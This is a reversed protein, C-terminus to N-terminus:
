RGVSITPCQPTILCCKREIFYNWLETQYSPIDCLADKDANLMNIRDLKEDRWEMHVKKAGLEYAKQAILHAFDQCNVDCRIVVEQGKQMNAGISVALEAYREMQKTTLM